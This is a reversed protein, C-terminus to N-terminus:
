EKDEKKVSKKKKLKEAEQKRIEENRDKQRIIEQQQSSLHQTDYRYSM